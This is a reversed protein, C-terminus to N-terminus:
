FPFYRTRRLLIWKLNRSQRKSHGYFPLTSSRLHLSFQADGSFSCRVIRHVGLPPDIAKVKLFKIQRRQTM